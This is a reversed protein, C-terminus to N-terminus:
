AVPTIPKFPGITDLSTQQQNIDLLGRVEYNKKSTYIQGYGNDSTVEVVVFPDINSDVTFSLPLLDTKYYNLTQVPKFDVYRWKTIDLWKTADAVPSVSATFSNSATGSITLGGLYQYINRNYEVIQGNLYTTFMDWPTTNEYKRPNNLKNSDVLSEYLKGYYIVRDGVAYTTFPQWEPHTKYTRININFYEPIENSSQTAVTFDIVCNYVTSGSNIPMLYAENMKFNIPVMNDSINFYQIEKVNHTIVSQGIFDTRGTIDLINHTIPIVNSELWKKLGQLKIIVDNLSYTIVKNGEKDTIRYTLNFLNTYVFNANPLTHKIFDNATWGEVSNNFIDPIEVKFLKNFNPSKININKYYEYLVLDNYGFYNIANIIAKYSGVYPFIENKVLLMEKRKKNLYVWDVGGENIDYEKFIFTDDATINKGINTLEIQYRIDEIETQGYLSFRGIIRDTVIFETKLYSKQGSLPYDIVETSENYMTYGTIFDVIILRTYIERIKFLSGSNLSRYQNKNNSTDTIILKIVQGIELGRDGGSIDSTFIDSSQPHLSIEGWQKGDIDSKINFTIINSNGATTNIIFSIDQRKVLLLNSRTVGENDSRFGIFTEIPEPLFSINTNSDIYDLTYTTSPFITQQAKPDSVKNIDRNPNRNLIVEPLPKEGIYSYSGSSQLQDGSFDYIFMEPVRDSEWTWIYETQVSGNFKERPRRIYDRTKLWIDSKPTYEPDLTGYLGEGVTSYTTSAIEFVAGLEVEIENLENNEPLIGWISKRLPNYIMKSMTGGISETHIVNGTVSNIVLVSNSTQSSMYVDSDFQNITMYGHNGIGGSITQTNTNIDLESFSNSSDSININGRFNNYIFESFPQQVYSPINTIINNDIKYLTTGYVYVSSNVPEYFISHTLGSIPYTTQITRTSGDIRYVNNDNCTVYLDNENVNFALVGTSYTATSISTIFTNSLNWVDIQNSGSIYIDGNITNVAIDKPIYSLTITDVITNILPDIVYIADTTLTYLLNNVTNFTLKISGLNGSLEIVSIVEALYADLVILNDGLAYISQSLQLYMIDVMNQSGAYSNLNYVNLTYTNSNNTILNFGTSFALTNFSGAGTGGIPPTPCSGQTFGLSFAITVFPSSNCIHGNTGWFPGQYSLNLRDPDLYLINYEQNDFPYVTNNISFVMGTAFGAAEFSATGSPITVENSAILLGQNGFIKDIIRYQTVGPQKGKGISIEYNLRQSQSKIDFKLAQLSTLHTVYIGYGALINSHLDSWNELTQSIDPNQPSTFVTAVDYNSGNIKISLYGGLDYFIVMSHEIHYNATTGVSVEYELPVNPYETELIITNLYISTFSGTYVLSPIIGLTVLRTFYRALWNRLTRDITRDMDIAIGVYVWAVEEQYIMGNIKITIGFEDIDTFVLNYRYNSSLNKNKETTLVEKVQIIKEYTSMSSGIAYTTGISDHYFNIEAYKGPFRPEAILKNAEWKLDVNFIDLENSFKEASQALTVSSTGQWPMEFYVHNSTLYIDGSILTETSVPSTLPLYTISATWYSTNDPTISSTATHTYAQICEYILNNWLVQSQTAYYIVQTNGLFTDIDNVVLFGNNLLSGIVKFEVGPKFIDDPIPSGFSIYNNNFSLPGIYVKPLDTKTILEIILDQGTPISALEYKYYVNDLIDKNIITVTSDNTDSNVINLKKGNYLKSYFQPESWDSLNDNYLKDVYNLIGISNVGSITKNIYQSASGIIAGYTVDFSFNDASSIIMIAGKKSGVVTYAKNPNTFEFISSDFLIQSGLPYKSEFDIGYVWKSYFTSDTNVPEIREIQQTSWKNGNINIGYENFLQFKDLIIEGPLEYEFSPINEFTYIGITKFTDNSNENFLLDAEWRNEIDNWKTNIYDGEKNFFIIAKDASM